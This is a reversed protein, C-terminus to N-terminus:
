IRKGNMVSVFFIINININDSGSDDIHDIGDVESIWIFHCSVYIYIYIKKKM